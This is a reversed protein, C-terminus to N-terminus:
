GDELGVESALLCGNNMALTLVCDEELSLLRLVSCGITIVAEVQSFMVLVARNQVSILSQPGPM